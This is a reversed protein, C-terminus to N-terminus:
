DKTISRNVHTQSIQPVCTEKVVDDITELQIM